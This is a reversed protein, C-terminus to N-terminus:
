FPIQTLKKSVSLEADRSPVVDGASSICCENGLPDTGRVGDETLM